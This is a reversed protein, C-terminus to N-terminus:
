ALAITASRVVGDRGKVTIVLQTDTPLAFTMEALATPPNSTTLIASQDYGTVGNPFTVAGNEDVLMVDQNPSWTNGRQLALGGAQDTTFNFNNTATPSVGVQLNAAKIASM